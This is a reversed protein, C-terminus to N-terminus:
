IWLCVQGRATEKRGGTVVLGAWRTPAEPERGKEPGM